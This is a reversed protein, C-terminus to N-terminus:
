VRDTPPFAAWWRRSAGKKGAIRLHAATHLPRPVRALPASWGAAPAALAAIVILLLLLPAAGAPRGPQSLESAAVAAPQAAGSPLGTAAAAAMGM